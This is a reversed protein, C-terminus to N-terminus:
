ILSIIIRIMDVMRDITAQISGKINTESNLHVSGEKTIINPNSAIFLLM